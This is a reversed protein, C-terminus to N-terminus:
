PRPVTSLRVVKAVDAGGLAHLEDLLRVRLTGPGVPTAPAGGDPGRAAAEAAAAFMACAAAAATIRGEETAPAAALFAAVLGSLSCGTATVKQLLPVGGTVGVAAAAAAPGVVYDTAGTVVVVAGTAAALRAAAAVAEDSGHTSDVGKGGGGAGAAAGVAAALTLVESPNARIAAPGSAALRAAVATRWPTAGVGVPDLVWPVGAAKASAVAAEMSAVWTADLTGINVYLAGAIAAFPAAEEAAHIMAPSAGAALLTNAALDMSVFNTICHVLPSRARVADVAAAIAAPTVAM